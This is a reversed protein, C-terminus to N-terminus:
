FRVFLKRDATLVAERAQFVPAGTEKVYFPATEEETERYPNYSVEVWGYKARNSPLRGYAGSAKRLSSGEGKVFAHVNKRGTERVKRQGAPRVVFVPNEILRETVHATVLGRNMVSWVKKHLNFYHHDLAM